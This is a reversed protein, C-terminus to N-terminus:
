ARETALLVGLSRGRTREGNHAAANRVALEARPILEDPILSIFDDSFWQEEDEKWQRWKTTTLEKVEEEFSRWKLRHHNFIRTKQEDTESEFFV